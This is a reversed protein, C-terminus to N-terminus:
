ITPEKVLCSIYLIYYERHNSESTIESNRLNSVCCGTITIQKDVRGKPIYCVNWSNAGTELNKLRCVVSKKSTQLLKLTHEKVHWALYRVSEWFSTVENIHICSCICIHCVYNYINLSIFLLWLSAGAFATM